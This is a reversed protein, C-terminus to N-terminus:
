GMRPRLTREIINLKKDWFLTNMMMMMMMMVMMINNATNKPRPGTRSGSVTLFVKSPNDKTENGV